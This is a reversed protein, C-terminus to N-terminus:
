SESIEEDARNALMSSDAEADQFGSELASGRLRHTLMGEDIARQPRRGRLMALVAPVTTLVGVAVLARGLRRRSSHSLQGAALLGIGVGLAARTAVIFGFKPPSLVIDAM